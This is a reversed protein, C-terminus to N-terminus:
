TTHKARRGVNKGAAQAHVCRGNCDSDEQTRARHLQVDPCAARFSRRARNNGMSSLPITPGIADHFLNRGASHRQVARMATGAPSQLLPVISDRGQNERVAWKQRGRLSTRVKTSLLINKNPRKLGTRALRVRKHTPRCRVVHFV